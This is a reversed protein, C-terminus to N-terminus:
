QHDVINEIDSDGVHHGVRVILMPRLFAEQLCEIRAIQCAAQGYELRGGGSPFTSDPLATTPDRRVAKAVNIQGGGAPVIVADPIESAARQLEGAGTELERSNVGCMM